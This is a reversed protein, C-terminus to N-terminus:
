SQAGALEDLMARAARMGHVWAAGADKAERLTTHEGLRHTSGDPAQVILVWAVVRRARRGRLEMRETRDVELVHVGAPVVVTATWEPLPRKAGAGRSWQVPPIEVTVSKRPRTM